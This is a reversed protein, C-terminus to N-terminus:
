YEMRERFEKWKSAVNGKFEEWPTEGRAYGALGAGVHTERYEEGPSLATASVLHVVSSGGARIQRLADAFLPNTPLLDETVTTYPALLNLETGLFDLGKESSVLWELFALAAQREEASGKSNIAAYLQPELALGIKEGATGGGAAFNMYAPIIGIDDARLTESGATNLRGWLETGGLLMAAKGDAFEAMAHAETRNQLTEPAAGGNALMLDLLGKYAEHNRFEIENVATGTLERNGARFEYSLPLSLLRHSLTATEGEKLAPSAFAGDIDLEAKHLTIDKVLAELQAFDTVEDIATFAAGKDALAFYAELIPKSYVIGFAHVGLPVAVPVGGAMLALAPDLLRSYAGSGALDEANDKWAQHESPNAFLIVGPAREGKLSEKLGELTAGGAGTLEINVGTLSKYDAALAQWLAAQAAHPQRIRVTLEGEVVGPVPSTSSEGEKKPTATNCAALLGCVLAACLALALATTLHKRHKMNQM